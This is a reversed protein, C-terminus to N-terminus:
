DSRSGRRCVVTFDLCCNGGGPSFFFQRFAMFAAPPSASAPQQCCCNGRSRFPRKREDRIEATREVGSWSGVPLFVFCMAFRLSAFGLTQTQGSESQM